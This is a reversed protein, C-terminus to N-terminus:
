RANTNPIAIDGTAFAEVNWSNNGIGPDAAPTCVKYQLTASSLGPVYDHCTGDFTKTNVRM